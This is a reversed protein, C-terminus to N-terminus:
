PPCKGSTVVSGDTLIPHVLMRTNETYRRIAQYAGECENARAAKLINM